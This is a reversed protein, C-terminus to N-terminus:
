KRSRKKKLDTKINKIEDRLAAATEFELNDAAKKMAKLLFAIKGEATMDAFYDPKEIKEPEETKSDAFRTAQLIEERTKFITEPNINHKRNYELQKQRRRDTEEIAKRMSDTVKDAYFIVEGNKNRAARGSTQILSRESRLFGEKDADLIAVLSV